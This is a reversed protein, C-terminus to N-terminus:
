RRSEKQVLFLGDRLSSLDSLELEIYEDNSDQFMTYLEQMRVELLSIGRDVWALDTSSYEVGDFTDGLAQRLKEYYGRLKVNFLWIDGTGNGIQAYFEVLGYDNDDLVMHGQKNIRLYEAPPMPNDTDRYQIRGEDLWFDTNWDGYSMLLLRGESNIIFQLLMRGKSASGGETPIVMVAIHGSQTTNYISGYDILRDIYWMGPVMLQPIEIRAVCLGVSSINYELVKLMLNADEGGSFYLRYRVGSVRSVDRADVHFNDEYVTVKSDTNVQIAM